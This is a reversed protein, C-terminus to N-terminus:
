PAQARLLCQESHGVVPTRVEEMDMVVQQISVIGKAFAAIHAVNYPAMFGSLHKKAEM